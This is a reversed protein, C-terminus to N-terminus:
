RANAAAVAAGLAREAPAEPAGAHRWSVRHDADLLLLYADDEGEYRVLEQWRVADKEILLVRPHLAVPVSKRIGRLAIGRFM